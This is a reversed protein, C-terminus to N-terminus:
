VPVQTSLLVTGVLLLVDWSYWVKDTYQWVRGWGTMWLNTLTPVVCWVTTRDIGALLGSCGMVALCEVNAHPAYMMLYKAEAAMFGVAVSSWHCNCGTTWIFCLHALAASRLAWKKHDGMYFGWAANGALVFMAVPRVALYMCLFVSNVVTYWVSTTYGMVLHVAIPIWCYDALCVVPVTQSVSVLTFVVCDRLHVPVALQQPGFTVEKNTEEFTFSRLTFWVAHALHQTGASETMYGFVMSAWLLIAPLVNM